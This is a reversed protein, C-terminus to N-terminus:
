GGNSTGVQEDKKTGSDASDFIQRDRTTAVTVRKFSNRLSIEPFPDVFDGIGSQIRSRDSNNLIDDISRENIRIEGVYESDWGTLKLGSPLTWTETFWMQGGRVGGSVRESHIAGLDFVKIIAARSVPYRGFRAVRDVVQQQEKSVTSCGCVLLMPIISLLLLFRIMKSSCYKNTAWGVTIDPLCKKPYFGDKGEQPL